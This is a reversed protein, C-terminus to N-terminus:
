LEFLRPRREAEIMERDFPIVAVNQPVRLGRVVGVLGGICEDYAVAADGRLRKRRPDCGNPSSAAPSTGHPDTLNYLLPPPSARLHSSDRLRVPLSCTPSAM